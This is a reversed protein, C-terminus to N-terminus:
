KVERRADISFGGAGASALVLLGGMVAINKFFLLQAIFAADAPAAWYAHGSVAALLTFIAMIIAVLRTQFGVLLAISGVIEIVITVVLAFVPAPIGLSAFYGLTGEFGAMKALGAPLFLAIILLRGILNLASQYTNM